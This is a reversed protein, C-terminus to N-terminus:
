MRFLITALLVLNFVVSLGALWTARTVRRDVKSTDQHGCEKTEEILKLVEAKTINDGSLITM